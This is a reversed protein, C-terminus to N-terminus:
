GLQPCFTVVYEATNNYAPKNTAANGCTFTSSKDDYPFTYCTPCAEKLWTIYPQAAGGAGTVAYETWTSNTNVCPASTPVKVGLTTNWTPCGCCTSPAGPNYCSFGFYDTSIDDSSTCAYFNTFTSTGFTGGPVSINCQFITGVTSTPDVVCIQDATWYSPISSSSQTIQDPGCIQSLYTGIGAGSNYAIGCKSNSGTCSSHGTSCPCGDAGGGGATCDGPSANYKVWIYDEVNTPSFNWSSASLQSTSVTNGAISCRYPDTSSPTLPTLNADTPTVSFPITVGNIITVDYYDVPFAGSEVACSGATPGCDQYLTLGALTPLYKPVTGLQGQLTFENNTIPAKGFGQGIVCAGNTNTGCDSVTCNNGPSTCGARGAMNGSWQQNIGNNYIPFSATLSAPTGSTYATLKYTNPNDTNTITPNNWFCLGNPGPNLCFSGHYCDSDSSCKSPSSAGQSIAAPNTAGPNIGPYIDVPCYNKFIVNRSGASNGTAASFQFTPSTVTQVRTGVSMSFSPTYVTGVNSGPTGIMTVTLDCVGGTNAAPFIVKPSIANGDCTGSYTNSGGSSSCTATFTPANIWSPLGNFKCSNMPISSTTGNAVLYIDLQIQTAQYAMEASYPMRGVFAPDQAFCTITNLCVVLTGCLYIRRM